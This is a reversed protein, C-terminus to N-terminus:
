NIIAAHSRYDCGKAFYPDAQHLLGGNVCPVQDDAQLLAQRQQLQKGLLMRAQAHGLGCSECPQGLARRPTEQQGQDM